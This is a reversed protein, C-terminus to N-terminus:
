KKALHIINIAACVSQATEFPNGMSLNEVFNEVYRRITLRNLVIYTYNMNCEGTTWLKFKCM